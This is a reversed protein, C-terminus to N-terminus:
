WAGSRRGNSSSGDQSGNPSPAAAALEETPATRVAERRCSDGPPPGGATYLSWYHRQRQL